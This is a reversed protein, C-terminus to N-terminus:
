LRDTAFPETVSVIGLPMEFPYPATQVSSSVSEENHEAPTFQVAGFAVAVIPTWHLQTRM